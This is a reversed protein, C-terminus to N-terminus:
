QPAMRIRDLKHLRRSTQQTCEADSVRSSAYHACNRSVVVTQMYPVNTRILPTTM